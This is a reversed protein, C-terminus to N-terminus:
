TAPSGLQLTALLAQKMVELTRRRRDIEAHNRGEVYKAELKALDELAEQAWFVFANPLEPVDEVVQKRGLLKACLPCILIRADEWNYQGRIRWYVNRASETKGCCSMTIQTQKSEWPVPPPKGQRVPGATTLDKGQHATYQRFAEDPSVESWTRSHVSATAPATGAEAVIPEIAEDISGTSAQPPTAEGPNAGSVM